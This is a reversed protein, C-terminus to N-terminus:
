FLTLVVQHSKLSLMGCVAYAFRSFLKSSFTDARDTRYCIVIESGDSWKQVMQPILEVPDQMDASINIM